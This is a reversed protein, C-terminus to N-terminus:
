ELDVWNKNESLFFDFAANVETAQCAYQWNVNEKKRRERTCEWYNFNVVQIRQDYDIKLTKSFDVINNSPLSILLRFLSTGGYYKKSHGQAIIHRVLFRMPRLAHGEEDILQNYFNLISEWSDELEKASIYDGEKM